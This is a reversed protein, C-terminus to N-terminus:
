EVETVKTECNKVKEVKYCFRCIPIKWWHPNYKFCTFCCHHINNGIQCRRYARQTAISTFAMDESVNFDNHSLDDVFSDRRPDVPDPFYEMPPHWDYSTKDEATQIIEGSYDALPLGTLPDRARPTLLATVHKGVWEEATKKRQEDNLTEECYGEPHRITGM